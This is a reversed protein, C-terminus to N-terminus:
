KNADALIIAVWRSANIFGSGWGPYDQDLTAAIDAADDGNSLGARVSASSAKVADITSQLDAKSALAGHGPIIKIDDPVLALVNEVNAIFGDISGGSDIDVYPFRGNFFHDGMHVVNSHKFWVASDGDTHGNPLHILAITDDNFHVTADDDYTVLPLGTRPFNATTLLRIRVNDHAVITGTRGFQPNSGTHDGHFHTNLILRPQDGGLEAIAAQIKDGLPAYQDDVILTGDDGISLGINGGAGELMHIAGAVHTPKIDVAAFRDEAAWTQTTLTLPLLLRFFLRM